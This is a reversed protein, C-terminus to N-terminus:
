FSPRPSSAEGPAPGPASAHDSDLSPSPDAGAASLALKQRLLEGALAHDGEKEAKQIRRTLEKGSKDLSKAKLRASLDSMAAQSTEGDFERPSVAARSILLALAEDRALSKLSKPDLAGREGIQGVLELFLEKTDDEPWYGALEPLRAATEPHALAHHLIMAALPDGDLAQAQARPPSPAFIQPKDASLPLHASDVGLREALIRQFIQGKAADRVEALLERAERLAQAQGILPDGRPRFIKQCVFDLASVASQSLEALGDPGHERVFSDPDHSAPLVIVRGEIEANLLKPLAKKAAEQGAADGDYLLLIEKVQGRLLNIQAQTLATGMSAVANKLGAAVLSILDFYGEVLFVKQSARAHPRALGFGYLLSGKKHIPTVPSNVYKPSPISSAGESPNLARGAFAVVRGDSDEIPIMLRDRFLDYVGDRGSERAKALGAEVIVDRAFGEAALAQSLAEWENLSYGLQFRRSIEDDVGRARLYELVPKGRPDDWLKAVFFDRAKACAEYLGKKRAPSVTRGWSAGGREAPLSVGYEQALEAVTEPFSANDIMMRFKIVDGGAQCGFCYFLGKEENVTFSPTREHHFPCLGVHSARGSRKLEVHRRVQALIDAADRVEAIKEDTFPM